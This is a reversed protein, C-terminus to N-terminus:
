HTVAWEFSEQADMLRKIQLELDTENKEPHFSLKSVIDLYDTFEDLWHKGSSSMNPNTAIYRSVYVRLEILVDRDLGANFQFNISSAMGSRSTEFSKEAQFAGEVNGTKRLYSVVAVIDNTAPPKIRSFKSIEQAQLSGIFLFFVGMLVKVM